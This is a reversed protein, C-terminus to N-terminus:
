FIFIFVCACVCLWPKTVLRPKRKKFLKFIFNTMCGYQCDHLLSNLWFQSCILSSLLFIQKWKSVESTSKRDLHTLRNQMGGLMKCTGPFCRWRLLIQFDLIQMGFDLIQLNQSQFTAALTTDTTVHRNELSGDLLAQWFNELIECVHHARVCGRLEFIIGQCGVLSQQMQMKEAAILQMSAATKQLKIKCLDAGLQM